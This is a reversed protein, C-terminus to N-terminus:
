DQEPLKIVNCPHGKILYSGSLTDMNETHYLPTVNAGNPDYPDYGPLDLKECSQWWGNQTCVVDYHIGETLKAEVKIRGYPTEVVVWEGESIGLRAARQPNIELFPNPV